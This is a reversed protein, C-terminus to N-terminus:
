VLKRMPKQKQPTPVTANAALSQACTPQKTLEPKQLFHTQIELDVLFSTHQVTRSYRDTRHVSPGDSSRETQGIFVRDMRCTLHERCHPDSETRIATLASGRDASAASNQANQHFVWALFNTKWDSIFHRNSHPVSTRVGMRMTIKFEPKTSCASRFRFVNSFSFYKNKTLLQVMM